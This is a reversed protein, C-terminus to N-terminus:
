FRFRWQERKRQGKPHVQDLLCQPAQTARDRLHLRCRQGDSVARSAAHTM